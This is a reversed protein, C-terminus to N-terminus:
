QTHAPKNRPQRTQGDTFIDTNTSAQDQKSIIAKSRTLLDFRLFGGAKNKKRLITKARQPRKPHWIFKLTAKRNRCFLFPMSIKILTVNFRYIARLPISTKVINLRGAWLVCATRGNTQTDEKMEKPMTRHKETYLDKAEKTLNIGLYKMIKSTKLFSIPKGIKNENHM